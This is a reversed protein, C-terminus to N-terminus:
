NKRLKKEQLIKAVNIVLHTNENNKKTEAVFGCTKLFKRERGETKKIAM